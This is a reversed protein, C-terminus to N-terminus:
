GGAIRQSAWFASAAIRPIAFAPLDTARMLRLSVAALAFPYNTGREGAGCLARAAARVSLIAAAYPDTQVRPDDMAILREIEFLDGSPIEAPLNIRLSAELTVFDQLVHGPGTRQFDVLRVGGTARDVIVNDSNLDGHLIGSAYARPAGAGFLAGCVSPFRYREFHRAAHALLAAEAASAMEPSGFYRDLYYRSLDRGGAQGALGRWARHLTEFLMPVVLDIAGIDGGALHDTLTQPKAERGLLSLCLAARGHAAGFGLLDPRCGEPLFPRVFREYNSKERSGAERPAIKLVKAAARDADGEADGATVKLLWAGSRGGNLRELRIAGPTDGLALDLLEILERRERASAFPPEGVFRYRTRVDAM